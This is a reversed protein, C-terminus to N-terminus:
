RGFRSALLECLEIIAETEPLRGLQFEVPEGKLRPDLELIIRRAFLHATSGIPQFECVAQEIAALPVRRTSARHRVIMETGEIELAHQANSSFKRAPIPYQATPRRTNVRVKWLDRLLKLCHANGDYETVSDVHGTVRQHQKWDVQLRCPRDQDLYWIELGETPAHILGYLASHDSPPIRAGLLSSLALYRREGGVWYELENVDIRLLQARNARRAAATAVASKLFWVCAAVGALVAPARTRPLARAAFATGVLLLAILAAKIFEDALAARFSDPLTVTRRLFVPAPEIVRKTATTM